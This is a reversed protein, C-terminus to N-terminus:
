FTGELLSEMTQSRRILDVGGDARILIEAPRPRGNYTSGMSYGYAGADLVAILDGERIEPLTKKHAIFDSSECINGVISIEEFNVSPGGSERYVEIEHRSDYLAPRMLVNMGIDTGAFIDAGSRKVARVAGLIVACEAVVYRGPEIRFVIKKDRRANFSNIITNLREGLSALDLRKEGSQKGYPVGFGGGLDVFELTDSFSEAITLLSKVGALYDGDDMFLSGLHQNVGVLRLGYKKLINKVEDIDRPDIGFKTGAGATVVKDHHGVGVGPDFRAAVSAGPKLAGIRDLM